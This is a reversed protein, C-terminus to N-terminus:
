PQKSFTFQATAPIHDSALARIVEASKLQLGPTYFIYDARIRPNDAPFTYTNTKDAFADRFAASLNKIEDSYPAANLDGVIIANGGQAGVLKVVETTQGKREEASLGLHTSYYHIPTGGVDITARLIGRQEGRESAKLNSPLLTNKSDTIPYKSLIATGYQRRQEGPKLPARDLNAGFAYHFKLYDALWKAQDEFKSREAWHKDVEQLGIVEAGSAALVDGVRKLDLVNDMGIGVHMNYTLVKLTVEEKQPSGGPSPPPTNRGGYLSLAIITVALALVLAAAIWRWPRNLGTFNM